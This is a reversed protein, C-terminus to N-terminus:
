YNSFSLFLDKSIYLRDMSKVDLVMKSRM